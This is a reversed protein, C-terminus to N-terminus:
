DEACIKPEVKEVPLEISFKSNKYLSKFLGAKCNYTYIQTLAEYTAPSSEDDGTYKLIGTIILDKINDGNLDKLDLNLSGGKYVIGDDHQDFLRLNLNHVKLTGNGKSTGELAINFHLQKNLEIKRLSQANNNVLQSFISNLTKNDLLKNEPESCAFTSVALTIAGIVVSFVTKYRKIITNLKIM